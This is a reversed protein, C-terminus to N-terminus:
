VIDDARVQDLIEEFTMRGGETHRHLTCFVIHSNPLATRICNYRVHKVFFLMFYQSM